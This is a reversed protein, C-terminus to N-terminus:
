PEKVVVGGSVILKFAEEVSMTLPTIKREPMMFFFGTTPNPTTPVFINLVKEETKEQVEGSAFGTVFGIVFSGPTPFEVLVVKRFSKSSDGAITNLFQKIAKYIGRGLPIRDFIRDGLAVLKKGLYFRTVTGTLLILLLAFLLGIGPIDHGLMQEPHFREPIFSRSFEEAGLILVKLLWITGAIPLLTLMGAMFSQKLFKKM